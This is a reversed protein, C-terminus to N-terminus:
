NEKRYTKRHDILFLVTHCATTCICLIALTPKVALAVDVATEWWLFSKLWERLFTYEALQTDPLVGLIATSVACIGAFIEMVCGSRFLLIWCATGLLLLFATLLIYFVATGNLGDFAMYFAGSEDMAIRMCKMRATYGAAACVYVTYLSVIVCMVIRSIKVATKM